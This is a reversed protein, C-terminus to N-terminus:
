GRVQDKADQMDVDATGKVRAKERKFEDLLKQNKEDVTVKLQKGGVWMDKAVRLVRM